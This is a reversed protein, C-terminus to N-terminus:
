IETAPHENRKSCWYWFTIPGEILLLEDKLEFVATTHARTIMVSNSNLRKGFKGETDCETLFASYM